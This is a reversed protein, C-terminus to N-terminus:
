PERYEIIRVPITSRDVLCIIEQELGSVESTGISSIRFVNSRTDLSRLLWQRTQNALQGTPGSNGMSEDVTRALDTVGEAMANRMFILQQADSEELQQARFLAILLSESVTNINIPGPRKEYAPFLTCESIVALIQEEESGVPGCEAHEPKGRLRGKLNDQRRAVRWVQFPNSKCTRSISTTQDAHGTRSRKLKNQHLGLAIKFIGLDCYQLRLRPLGSDTVGDAVSTVTLWGAWAGDLWGDADDEPPSKDGDNENPDLRGDLDWDEGRVYDPWMGAVLEMETISRLPENRPSYNYNADYYDSEAGFMTPEDDEDIWDRLAAYQDESMDRNMGPMPEEFLPFLLGLNQEDNINLRAHEDLPEGFDMGERHHRIDWSANETRGVSALRLERFVSFADTPEPTTADWSLAAIVSEVGARAAWRAQTRQLVEHGLHPQRFSVLQISTATLAAIVVSWMALLVSVGRRRQRSRPPGHEVPPPTANAPDTLDDQVAGFGGGNNPTPRGGGGGNTPRGGGAGGTPRGGGGGGTPRGGGGGGGIGPRGGGGPQIGGSQISGEGGEGTPGDGTGTGGQEEALEEALLVEIEEFHDKPPVVRDIPVVTRLDVLPADWPDEGPKAGTATILIEVGM